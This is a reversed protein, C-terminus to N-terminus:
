QPIRMTRQTNQLLEVGRIPRSLQNGSICPDCRTRIQREQPLNDRRVPGGYFRGSLAGIQVALSPYLKTNGGTPFWHMWIILDFSGQSWCDRKRTGHLSLKDLWIMMRRPPLTSRSSTVM